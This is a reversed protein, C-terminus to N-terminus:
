KVGAFTAAKVALARAEAILAGAKPQNHFGMSGDLLVVNLKGRAEGALKQAAASKSGAVRALLKDVADVEERTMSQKQKLIIDLTEADMPPAQRGSALVRGTGEHCGACSSRLEYAKALAPTAVMFTHSSTDWQAPGAATKDSRFGIKAMHCDVCQVGAKAMPSDAFMETNNRKAYGSATHCTTCLAQPKLRLQADETKAHFSHCTLCSMGAKNFHKSKSFDQWQQRNRAALDNPWFYHYEDPNSTSTYNWFRMRHGMDTDGPLFGQQFALDPVTKNTGRGHCQACLQTQQLPNLDKLPHVIATAAPDLAQGAAKAAEAQQVHVSAPGHCRECAVGWEGKGNERAKWVGGDAKYFEYGTTHCGSCKSEAFRGKPLEEPRAPRGDPTGDPVVWEHPRYSEILWQRAAVSWRLPGPMYNDGVKIEYQQDWKGGLVKAVEYTQNNAPNDKDLVTFFFKGDQRFARVQFTLQEAKGDKGTVKINRYTLTQDDFNGMVSEASPAREMKAHWTASWEAHQKAHCARCSDSGAYKASAFLKRPEAARGTQGTVALAELPGRQTSDKGQPWAPAASVAWTAVFTATALQRALSLINLLAESALTRLVHSM